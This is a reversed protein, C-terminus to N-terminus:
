NIDENSSKGAKSDHKYTIAIIFVLLMKWFSYALCALTFGFFAFLMTRILVVARGGFEEQKEIESRLM